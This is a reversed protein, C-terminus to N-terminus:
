GMPEAWSHFFQSDSWPQGPRNLRGVAHPTHGLGHDSEAEGVSPELSVRLNPMPNQEEKASLSSCLFVRGPGKSRVLPSKFSSRVGRLAGLLSGLQTVSVDRIELAHRVRLFGVECVHVNQWHTLSPIEFSWLCVM